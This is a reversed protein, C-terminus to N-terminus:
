SSVCPKAEKQEALVVQFQGVTEHRLVTFGGQEILARYGDQDWSWCHCEDHSEPTENWPSSAVLYRSHAGIWRVADHPDRVHELVETTVAIDGLQIADRDTGFVDAQEATVGRERWGAENSPQFDYGWASFTVYQSDRAAITQHVLQLLGGDGCGLDSLTIQQQGENALQVYATAIFELAKELRPRHVPQELHPARERHAHFAATSVHPTEGEPFLRYEAM